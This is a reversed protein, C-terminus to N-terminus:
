LSRILQLKNAVYGLFQNVEAPTKEVHQEAPTTLRTILGLHAKLVQLEAIAMSVMNLVDSPLVTKIKSFDHFDVRAIGALQQLRQIEALLKFASKFSDAPKADSKKPPPFAVDQVNLYNLIINVDENVRKVEAYVNAPSIERRNIIDWQMSIFNLKNFVDIPKKGPVIEQKPVIKSIGLRKKLMNIETLLRQTQEYVVEPEMKLVPELNNAALFPFGRQRRFLNIKLQIIYSKQWSHRPSLAAFIQIAPKSETLGLHSKILEVEKEIRLVEAFVISPTAIEVTAQSTSWPVSM